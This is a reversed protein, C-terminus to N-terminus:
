VGTAVLSTEASASSAAAAARDALTGFLSNSGIETITVAAIEGILSQPATAQVPQLYPSRGVLQGAHRGQREFLVDFTHGLCGRNFKAQSEDIAHQLRALRESKITDDIQMPMEAGPTGPRASYKFSFAGSFGIEAVLDLTAAFDEETEGPFGVIFDSTLAVAPCSRRLREVIRLYDARTHRRNMAALIRDSGSQVPL